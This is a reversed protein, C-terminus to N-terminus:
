TQRISHLVPLGLDWTESLWNVLSAVRPGVPSGVALATGDFRLALAAGGFSPGVRVRVLPPGETSAFAWGDATAVVGATREPASGPVSLRSRARREQDAAAVVIREFTRPDPLVDHGEVVALHLLYLDVDPVTEGIMQLAAGMRPNLETPLFGDARAVGDVTFVGRYDVTARLHAGVTRALGRMASRVEPTPDWVTGATAYHFRGTARDRLIVLECPRFTVVDDDLVLGHISCPVGELFPMVRVQDAHSAAFASAGALTATDHVWRVGSAGGSWGDRNDLAWVTGQGEDLTAHARALASAEAPVVARPARPVGAADWVADIVIKDELAQWAAPRAAFCPRGAVPRGEAFVARIVEAEGPPDWADVKALVDDPIHDLAREAQRIHAMAGSAVVGLAVHPFDGDLAALAAAGIAFTDTAGLQTLVKARGVAAELVPEATIWRRGGYVAELRTRVEALVERDAEDM